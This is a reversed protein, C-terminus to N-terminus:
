QASKEELSLIIITWDNGDTIISQSFECAHVLSLATHWIFLVSCAKLTGPIIFNRHSHM